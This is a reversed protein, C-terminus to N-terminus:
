FAKQWIYFNYDNRTDSKLNLFEGDVLALSLNETHDTKRSAITVINDISGTVAFPLAVQRDGQIYVLEKESVRLKMSGIQSDILKPIAAAQTQDSVNQQVEKLTHDKNISWEGVFDNITPSAAKETEQSPTPQDAFSNALVAYSFIAFTIISKKM